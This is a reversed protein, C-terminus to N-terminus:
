QVLEWTFPIDSEAPADTSVTFVGDSKSSIYITQATSVAPTVVVPTNSFVRTNKVTVSQSGATLLSEGYAPESVAHEDTEGLTMGGIAPISSEEPQNELQTALLTSLHDREKKIPDVADNPVLQILHTYTAIAEPLQKSETQATALDFLIEPDNPSKTALTTLLALADDYQKLSLALAAAKKGYEISQNQSYAKSYDAFALLLADAKQVDMLAYVSARAALLDTNNTYFLLGEQATELAQQKIQAQREPDATNELANLLATVRGTYTSPPYPATTQSVKAPAFSFPTHTPTFKEVALSLFPFSIFLTGGTILLYKILKKM